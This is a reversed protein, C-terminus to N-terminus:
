WHIVVFMRVLVSGERMVRSVEPVARAETVPAM